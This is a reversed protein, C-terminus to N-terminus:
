LSKKLERYVEGMVAELAIMHKIINKNEVHEEIIKLAAERSIM